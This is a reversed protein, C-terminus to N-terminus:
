CASREMYELILRFEAETADSKIRNARFSIIKVNGKVYGRAPVLRDITPRFDKHGTASLTIGLVPCISPIHIDEPTLDFPLGKSIARKRADYFICYAPTKSKGHSRYLQGARDRRFCGCSKTGGNWLKYGAIDIESGCDCLCKLRFQDRRKPAYVEVILLRGYRQGEEYRSAIGSCVSGYTIDPM